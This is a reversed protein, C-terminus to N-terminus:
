GKSEGEVGRGLRQTDTGGGETGRERERERERERGRVYESERDRNGKCAQTTGTIVMHGIFHSILLM